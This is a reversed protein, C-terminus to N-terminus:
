HLRPGAFVHRQAVKEFFRALACPSDNVFFIRIEALIFLDVNGLLDPDACDFVGIERLIPRGIVNKGPFLHERQM